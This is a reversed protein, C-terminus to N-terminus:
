TAGMALPHKAMRWGLEWVHEACQRTQSATVGLGAAGNAEPAAGTDLHRSLHRSLSLRETM